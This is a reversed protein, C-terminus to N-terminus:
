ILTRIRRELEPPISFRSQAVALATELWAKGSHRCLMLQRTDIITLMSAFAAEVDTFTIQDRPKSELKAIGAALEDVERRPGVHVGHMSLHRFLDPAIGHVERQRADFWDYFESVHTFYGVVIVRLDISDGTEEIFRRAPANWGDFQLLDARTLRLQIRVEDAIGGRIGSVETYNGVSPMRYHQVMQRLKIVFQSLPHQAFSVTVREPYEAITSHPEYLQRYVVRTHEILSLAGAVFNHLLRAIEHMGEYWLWKQEVRSYSFAVNPACFYDIFAILEEYNRQFLKRSFRFQNVRIATDKSRLDPPLGPETM